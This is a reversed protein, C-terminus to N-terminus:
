NGHTSRRMFICYLKLICMLLTLQKYVLDNLGVM